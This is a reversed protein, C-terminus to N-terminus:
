RAADIYCYFASSCRCLAILLKGLLRLSACTVTRCLYSALFLSHVRLSSPDQSSDTLVAEESAFFWRSEM